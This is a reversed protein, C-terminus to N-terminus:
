LLKRPGHDAVSAGRVSNSTMGIILLKGGGLNGRMRIILLEGHDLCWNVVRDSNGRMPM